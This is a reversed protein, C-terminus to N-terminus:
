TLTAMHAIDPTIPEICFSSGDKTEYSKSWTGYLQKYDEVLCNENDTDSSSWGKLSGKVRFVRNGHVSMRFKPRRFLFYISHEEDGDRTLDVIPLCRVSEAYFKLQVEHVRNGKKMGVMKVKDHFTISGFIDVSSCEEPNESDAWTFTLIADVDSYTQLAEFKIRVQSNTSFFIQRHHDSYSFKM